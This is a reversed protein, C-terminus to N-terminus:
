KNNIQKTIEEIMNKMNNPNTLDLKNLDVNIKYKKFLKELKQYMVGLDKNSNLTNLISNIEKLKRNEQYVIDEIYEDFLDEIARMIRKIQINGNDILESLKENDVSEVDEKLSTCNILIYRILEISFMVQEEETKSLNELIKKKIYLEEQKKPEYVVVDGSEYRKDTKQNNLLVGM